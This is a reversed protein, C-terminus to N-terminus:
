AARFHNRTMRTGVLAVVEYEIRQVVQRQDFLLDVREISGAGVPKPQRNGSSNM